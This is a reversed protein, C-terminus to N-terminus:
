SGLPSSRVGRGQSLRSKKMGERCYARHAEKCVECRCGRHYSAHTGCPRLEQVPLDVDEHVRPNHEKNDYKKIANCNACLIQFEDSGEQISKLIRAYYTASGVKRDRGGGGNVHDIQLARLDDFGCCVCARGLLDLIETRVKQYRRRERVARVQASVSPGVGDRM